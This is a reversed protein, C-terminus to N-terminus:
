VLGELMGLIRDALDTRCVVLDPLWPNDHNYTLPTGDLRSAHLGAARAVAVPAASDWEYQGGAHVYADVQGSVVASIKAGASGMPVLEAGLDAALKTLFEPARSRSAVLRLPGEAARAPYPPVPDTGLVVGQGPLGVAAATLQEPSTATSEWLAVHVAWDARGEEGFERTGDLPDIIWVREATRRDAGDRVGEESLVSDAPRHKALEAMLLEHSLQDGAARLATPDDFGREERLRLLLAGAADALWRAFGADDSPPTTSTLDEVRLDAHPM